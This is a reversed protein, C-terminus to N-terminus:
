EPEALYITVIESPRAEFRYRGSEEVSLPLDVPTEDLRVREAHTFPLGTWLEVQEREQSISYGRVILGEGYAATKVASLVFAPNDVTALSGSLPLRGAQLDTVRAVVPTQFGWAEQWAPLPDSCHPIVSYSFLHEGRCQAGPMELQPGPSGQRNDLDDRSLWGVCRLLTLAIETGGDDNALIAVEPLGRNAITLSTEDGPVTVFARQPVEPVPQEVWRSTDEAGPLAVPRRIVEFHGDYFAEQAVIGTPFHVRLRHDRATNTVSTEIDVRPVGQTIRLTTVIPLPAFQAALQLRADRKGALENPLRYIQLFRLSQEVTSVRRETTLPTNTAIDIITDRRPPCHSYVDGCDGGDVYCNLGPFSQGSRKDFLTLTGDGPDVTVSLFENEITPEEDAEPPGPLAEAPRLAYTRYGFAPIDQAVFRVELAAPPEDPDEPLDGTVDFPVPTGTEDIVEFPWLDPPPSVQVSVIDTYAHGAANFVVVPLLPTDGPLSNTDVQGALYDLNQDAIEQAVQEAQDFRVQMEHVVQDVSCGGISDHHHNQLLIRWAHATLSAPSRLRGRSGDLGSTASPPQGSDLLTAWASFPEAWRELLTQIAHNRQKIWMRASLVGAKLHFRQPSRLEGVVTPLDHNSSLVEDLYASLSSHVVQTGRFRKKIAGILDPVELQATQHDGGNMLLLIDTASHKKLSDRAKVLAAKLEDETAPLLTANNYGDRLYSVLVQSGDPAEWWLEAPADGLGRMIVASTIGFDRLIQPMQGIHGSSNPLYGVDMRAGFQAATQAGLQLNRVLAEPSVLFEDTSVHWPGIELRGEQVLSAIRHREEPRVELYDDLLITQGDLTFSAFRPEATLADLLTDMLYVQKLRLDQFPRHWERDWRTHSVVHLTFRRRSM